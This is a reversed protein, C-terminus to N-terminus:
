RAPAKQIESAVTRLDNVLSLADQRRVGNVQLIAQVDSFVADLREAPQSACDFVARLDQALRSRDAAELSTTALLAALNDVFTTVTTPTPQTPGAAASLLNKAFRQKLASSADAKGQLAAIDAQLLAVAKQQPNAGAATASAPRVPQAPTPVGQRVNNQNVLEKARQKVIVGQAGQAYASVSGLMVALGVLLFTKM